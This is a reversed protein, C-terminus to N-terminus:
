KDGRVYAIPINKEGKGMIKVNKEYIISIGYINPKYELKFQNDVNM